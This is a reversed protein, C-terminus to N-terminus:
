DTEGVPEFAGALAELNRHVKELEDRSITVTDGADARNLAKSIISETENVLQRQDSSWAFDDAANRRQEARAAAEDRSMVTPADTWNRNRWDVAGESYTMSQGRENVVRFDLDQLNGAEVNDVDGSLVLTKSAGAIQKAQDDSYVFRHGLRQGPYFYAKLAPPTGEPTDAFRIIVGDAQELRHVPVTVVTAVIDSRDEEFIQVIQQHTNSDQQTFEYTGPQLTKGPIEVAENFTVIVTDDDAGAPGQAMAPATAIPLMLLAAAATTTSLARL